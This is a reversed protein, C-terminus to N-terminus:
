SLILADSLPITGRTRVCGPVRGVSSPPKSHVGFLRACGARVRRAGMWQPNRRCGLLASRKGLAGADRRTCLHSPIRRSCLHARRPSLLRRRRCGIHQYDQRAIPHTEQWWEDVLVYLSVLLHELDVCLVAKREPLQRPPLPSRAPLPGAVGVPEHIAGRRTTEAPPTHLGREDPRPDARNSRACRAAAGQGPRWSTRGM